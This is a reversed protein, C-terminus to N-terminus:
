GNALEIDGIVGLQDDIIVIIGLVNEIKMGDRLVRQIDAKSKLMNCISTAAADALTASKAKVCVADAIGFSLSHGITGSSTCIGMPMEKASVILTVKDCLPSSGAYIGVRADHQCNMFIDGGNEVIINASDKLLDRGVQEAIAGAVAAMPGVNSRIAATMMDRIIAPSFCDLQLPALATLFRPHSEIYTELYARNRRLSALAADYLYLDSSIFLDSERVTVSFLTLNNKSINSRYTREDYSNRNIM